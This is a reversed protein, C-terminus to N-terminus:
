RRGLVPAAELESDSSGSQVGSLRGAKRGAPVDYGGRGVAREEDESELESANEQARQLRARHKRSSKRNGLAFDQSKNM